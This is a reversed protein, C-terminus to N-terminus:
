AARSALDAPRARLARMAHGSKGGIGNVERLSVPCRALSGAGVRVIKSDCCTVRRPIFLSPARFAFM